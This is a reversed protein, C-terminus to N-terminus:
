QKVFRLVKSKDDATSGFINYTGAALENINITLSNYGASLVVTQRNMIRGEMDSIVLDMKTSAAATANLKFSNGAVPNPSINMLAFGKTANLLAITNSYTIKGDADIMKLRHYNMGALPQADTHDFPQQCRLATATISYISNFNRADGSRELVLTATATTNCSVGWTLLHKGAQKVGNLYNLSIPLPWYLNTHVYFGSFGNVQITVEWYGYTSNYNVTTPVILVGSGANGSYFGPAPNGVNHPAIPVGHYQTVRLNSINPDGNGGGLVTPLDPWAANNLNYDVFEQDKFYLTITATSTNPNTSPEIDFHRQLYPEANFTQVSGDVIVCTNITGSVPSAGSPIVRAILNCSPDSYYAGAGVAASACVQAGGSVAALTGGGNIAVVVPKISSCSGKVSKIYYTGSTTIASATGHAPLISITAAANEWYSLTATTSGSTVASVTLDVTHPFCVASPNTITFTFNGTFEDAGIDPTVGNRTDGDYDVTTGFFKGAGDLGCNGDTVLHLYNSNSGVTSIYAPQVSVSNAERPPVTLILAPITTISSTGDYYLLHLGSSGSSYFNNNDSTNQYTVSSNNNRQYAVARGSGVGLITTENDLINDVLLIAPTTTAYLAANGFNNATATGSLYITNYYVHHHTNAVGTLFAGYAAPSFNANPATIGGIYNNYTFIFSTIASSTNGLSLGYCQSNGSTNISYIKNQYINNTTGPVDSLIAFANGATNLDHIVNGNVNITTGWGVWIGEVNGTGTGNDLTITNNSINVDPASSESVGPLEYIGVIDVSSSAATINSFNNNSITQTGSSIGTAGGINYFAFLNNASSLTRAFGTTISNGSITINGTPNDAYILEVEGSTALSLNNFVNNSITESAAGTSAEQDIISVASSSNNFNVGSFTNNSISIATTAAAGTNVIYSFLGAYGNKTLSASSFNNSNINVASTVNASNIAGIFYWTSSSAGGGALTISSLTNGTVNLTGCLGTNRIGYFLSATGSGFSSNNRITNNTVNTTTGTSTSIISYISTGGTTTGSTGIAINDSTTNGITNNSVTHSGSGSIGIGVWLQNNAATASSVTIAGISNNQIDISASSTAYIAESVNGSSNGNIVIAGTGSSAGITNAATTGVNVLGGQVNIGSFIGPGPLTSIVTGSRTYSIATITNGQIDSLVATSANLYIPFFTTATIGTLTYTGTATNTAYGITNNSVSYSDGSTNTIWIASHQSGTTQTRAATQYFKNGSITVATSTGSVYVGASTTAAGFYDFINNNSITINNNNNPSPSGSFYIGKTVPSPTASGINCNSITNNDNGGATSNSGFWINGGNTGVAMTSSGLIACNTVLNNTADTQFRITSTGSTNSATSNTIMLYNGGSNLGNITVNDAGNIDILPFGPTASGIITWSGGSPQITLSTWPGASQNLVASPAAVVTPENTVGTITISITNGAQSSANISAFAANLTIFPSNLNTTADAGSVTVQAQSYFFFLCLIVTLSYFKKM